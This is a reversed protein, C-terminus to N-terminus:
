KSRGGAVGDVSNARTPYAVVPFWQTEGTTDKSHWGAAMNTRVIICFM